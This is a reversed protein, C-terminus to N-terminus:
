KVPPPLPSLSLLPFSIYEIYRKNDKVQTYQFSPPNAKRPPSYNFFDQIKKKLQILPLIIM